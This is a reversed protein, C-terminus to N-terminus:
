IWIVSLLMYNCICIGSLTAIDAFYCEATGRAIENGNESCSTFNIWFKVGEWAIVYYM